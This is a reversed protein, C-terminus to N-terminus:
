KEHARWDLKDILLQYGHKPCLYFQKYIEGHPIITLYFWGEPVDFDLYSREPKDLYGSEECNPYDCSYNVVADTRSM